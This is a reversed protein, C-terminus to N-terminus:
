PTSQVMVLPLLDAATAQAVEEYPMPADQVYIVRNSARWRRLVQAYISWQNYTLVFGGTLGIAVVVLKTWLSWDLGCDCTKDATQGIIMYLSWLVRTIAMVYFTICWLVVSQEESSMELKRWKRFPKTKSHMIFDFKCLECRRADSSNIWHQLCAQHVYRLSGACHCPAILPNEADAECHCIRCMDDSTQGKSAQSSPRGQQQMPPAESPVPRTKRPEESICTMAAQEM